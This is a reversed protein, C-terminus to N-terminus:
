RSEQTRVLKNNKISFIGDKLRQKLSDIDLEIDYTVPHGPPLYETEIQKSCNPCYFELLRIWDGDPSFNYPGEIVKPHVESPDRDAVLCGTKYNERVSSIVHGCDACLWQENDVDLDLNETYRILDTM